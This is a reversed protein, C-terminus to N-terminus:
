SDGGLATFGRAFAELYREPNGANGLDAVGSSARVMQDTLLQRLTSTTLIGKILATTSPTCLLASDQGLLAAGALDPHHDFAELWQTEIDYLRDLNGATAYSKLLLLLDAADKNTANRREQWAVLKLLAIAPLSAVPVSFGHAIEVSLAAKQAEEFGAVNMEWDGNPPWAIKGETTEIQGFPVLDLPMRAPRYHLRYDTGPAASFAGTQLLADKLARFQGWGSVRIGLDVDLTLRSPKQGFVNYLILDRAMAGAVFFDVALKGAVGHVLHLLDVLGAEPLREAPVRLEPSSSNM